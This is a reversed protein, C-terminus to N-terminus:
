FKTHLRGLTYGLFIYKAWAPCPTLVILIPNWGTLLLWASMVYTVSSNDDGAAAPVRASVSRSCFALVWVPIQLPASEALQVGESAFSEAVKVEEPQSEIVQVVPTEVVIPEAVKVVEATPLSAVQVAEGEPASTEAVNVDQAASDAVQVSDSM